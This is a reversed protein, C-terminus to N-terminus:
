EEQAFKGQQLQTVVEGERVDSGLRVKGERDVVVQKKPDAPLTNGTTQNSIIVERLANLDINM